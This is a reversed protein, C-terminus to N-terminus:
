SRLTELTLVLARDSLCTSIALDIVKFATSPVPQNLRRSLDILNQSDPKSRFQINSIKYDLRFDSPAYTTMDKM